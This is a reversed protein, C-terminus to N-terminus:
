TLLPSHTHNLANAYRLAALEDNRTYTVVPTSSHGRQYVAWLGSAPHYLVYYTLEETSREGTRLRREIDAVRRQLDEFDADMVMDKVVPKLYEYM